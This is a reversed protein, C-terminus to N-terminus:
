IDRPVVGFAKRQKRGAMQGELMDIEQELKAITEELSPLDLRTLSRSGIVTASIVPKTVADTVETHGGLVEIGLEAAAKLTGHMLEELMAEDSQPPLLVTMLIGVPEAGASFVDNCNIHVALYGTDKTAGTIPDTSFVCLEEKPDMASCDEGTKPRVVIDDRHVKSHTVPDLVIRELIQPPIKGIEFM